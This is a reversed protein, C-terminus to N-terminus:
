KIKIGCEEYYWLNDEKVEYLDLGTNFLSEKYCLYYKGDNAKRVYSNHCDFSVNGSMDIETPEYCAQVVYSYSFVTIVITAIIILMQSVLSKKNNESSIARFRELIENEQGDAMAFLMNEEYDGDMNRKYEQLITELYDIKNDKSYNKIVRMDCCIELSQNLNRQLYFAIPNWWYICCLINAVFKIVVDNNSLHEYEHRLIQTLEQESYKIKPIVIIRKFMGTCCPTEIYPASVLKITIFRSNDPVLYGEVDLKESYNWLLHHIRVYNNIYHAIKIIAILLWIVVIADIIKVRILSTDILTILLIDHVFRWFLGGSIPLTVGDFEFPLAMRFVCTLYVMLVVTPNIKEFCRDKKRILLILMMLITSTMTASIISNITVLNELM